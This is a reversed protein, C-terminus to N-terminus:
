HKRRYMHKSIEHILIILQCITIKINNANMYRDATNMDHAM